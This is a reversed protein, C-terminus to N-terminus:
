CSSWRCIVAHQDCNQQNGRSHGEGPPGLSLVGDLHADQVRKGAGHGDALGRQLVGDQHHDVLLVLLASQQALLELGDDDIRRGVPRQEGLLGRFQQFLVFDGHDEPAPGRDGSFRHQRNEFLVVAQEKVGNLVFAFLRGLVDDVGAGRRVLLGDGCDIVQHVFDAHLAPHEFSRVVDVRACGVLNELSVQM